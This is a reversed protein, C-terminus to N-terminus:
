LSPETTLLAPHEEWPGVKLERFGYPLEYDDRLKWNQPFSSFATKVEAPVLCACLECVHLCAHVCLTYLELSFYFSKLKLTKLSHLTLLDWLKAIGDELLLLSFTVQTDLHSPELTQLSGAKM